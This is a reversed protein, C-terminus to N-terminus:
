LSSSEDSKFRVAKPQSVKRGLYYSLLTAGSGPKIRDMTDALAILNQVRPVNLGTHWHSIHARSFQANGKAIASQSLGWGGIMIQLAIQFSWPDRHGSKGVERSLVRRLFVSGDGPSLLDLSHSVSRLHESLADGGRMWRYITSCSIGSANSLHKVSLRKERCFSVLADSWTSPSAKPEKIKM